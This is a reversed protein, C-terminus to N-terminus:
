WCQASREMRHVAAHWLMVVLTYKYAILHGIAVCRPRYACANQNKELRLPARWEMVGFPRRTEPQYLYATKEIVAPSPFNLETNCAM